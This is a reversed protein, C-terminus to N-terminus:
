FGRGSMFASRGCHREASAARMSSRPALFRHGAREDAGSGAGSTADRLVDGAAGSRTWREEIFSELLMM